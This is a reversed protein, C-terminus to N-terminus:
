DDSGNHEVSLWVDIIVTTFVFKCQNGPGPWVVM